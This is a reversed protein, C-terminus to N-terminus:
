RLCVQPTMSVVGVTSRPVASSGHDVGHSAFQISVSSPARPDQTRGFCYMAQDGLDQIIIEALALM